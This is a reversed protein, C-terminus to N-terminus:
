GAWSKSYSTFLNAWVAELARFDVFYHLKPTFICKAGRKELEEELITKSSAFDEENELISVLEDQRKGLSSNAKIM